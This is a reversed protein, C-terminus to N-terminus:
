VYQKKRCLRCTGYGDSRYYVNEPTLLHGRKCMAKVPKQEQKYEADRSGQMIQTRYEFLLNFVEHCQTPSLIMGDQPTSIILEGNEQINFTWKGIHVIRM